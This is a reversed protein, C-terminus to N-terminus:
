KAREATIPIQSTVEGWNGAFKGSADKSIRIFALSNGLDATLILGNPSTFVERIPFTNGDHSVASGTYAGPKGSIQFTGTIPQGDSMTTTFSWTGVPDLPVPSAATQFMLAGFMVVPILRM